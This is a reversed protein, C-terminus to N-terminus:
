GVGGANERTATNGVVGATVRDVTAPDRAPLTVERRSPDPRSTDPVVPIGRAPLANVSADGGDRLAVAHGERAEELATRAGTEEAATRAGTEEAGPGPELVRTGPRPLDRAVSGLGVAALGGHAPRRVVACTVRASKRKPVLLEGGGVLASAEAVSPTGVAGLAADSPDPVAVAALRGAPYTVLPVGLWEAAAVIGPEGSKADVTTLEAIGRPSLGAERLADEILTLVEDAPAGKSAGVGVVLSPPRVEEGPPMPTGGGLRTPWRASSAEAM